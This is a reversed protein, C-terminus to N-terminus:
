KLISENSIVHWPEEINTPSNLHGKAITCAWLIGDKVIKKVNHNQIIGKRNTEQAHFYHTLV